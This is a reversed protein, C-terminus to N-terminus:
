TTAVADDTPVATPNFVYTCFDGLNVGTMFCLNNINTGITATIAAFMHLIPIILDFSNISPIVMVSSSPFSIPFDGFAPLNATMFVMIVLTNKTVGPITNEGSNIFPNSRVGNLFGSCFTNIRVGTFRPIMAHMIWNHIGNQKPM